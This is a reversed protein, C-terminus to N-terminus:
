ETLPRGDPRNILALPDIVPVGVVEPVNVTRTTTFSAVCAYVDIM